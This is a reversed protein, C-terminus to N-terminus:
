CWTTSLFVSFLVRSTFKNKRIWTMLTSPNILSLNKFNSVPFCVSGRLIKWCRCTQQASDSTLPVVSPYSSTHARELSNQTRQPSWLPWQNSPDDERNRQGKGKLLFKDWWFRHDCPSVPLGPAWGSQSHSLDTILSCEPRPPTKFECKLLQIKGPLFHSSICTPKEVRCLCM